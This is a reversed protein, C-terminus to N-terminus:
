NRGIGYVTNPVLPENIERHKKQRKLPLTDRSKKPDMKFHISLGLGTLFGRVESTKYNKKLM